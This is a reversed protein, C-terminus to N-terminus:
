HGEGLNYQYSSTISLTYCLNLRTCLMVYMIYRMGVAHPIREMRDRKIETKPYM